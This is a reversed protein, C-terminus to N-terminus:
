LFRLLFLILKGVDYSRIRDWSRSIFSSIFGILPILLRIFMLCQKMLNMPLIDIPINDFFWSLAVEIMEARKTTEM